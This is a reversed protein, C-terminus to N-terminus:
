HTGACKQTVLIDCPVVACNRLRHYRVTEATPEGERDDISSAAIENQAIPLADILQSEDILVHM